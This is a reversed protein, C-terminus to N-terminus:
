LGVVFIDPEIKCLAANLLPTIKIQTKKFVAIEEQATEKAETAAEKTM